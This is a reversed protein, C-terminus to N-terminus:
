MECCVLQLYMLLDANHVPQQINIALNYFIRWSINGILFNYLWHKTTVWEIYRSLDLKKNCLGAMAVGVM